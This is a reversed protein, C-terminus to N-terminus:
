RYPRERGTRLPVTPRDLGFDSLHGEICPPYSHRRYSDSTASGTNLGRGGLSTMFTELHLLKGQGDLCIVDDRELDGVSLAVTNAGKVHQTTFEPILFGQLSVKAMLASSSSALAALKDVLMSCCPASPTATTRPFKSSSQGASPEEYEPILCTVQPM